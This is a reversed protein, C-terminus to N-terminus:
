KGFNEVNQFFLELVMKNNKRIVLIEFVFFVLINEYYCKYVYIYYINIYIYLLYIIYKNKLFCDIYKSM